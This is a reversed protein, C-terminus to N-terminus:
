RTEDMELLAILDEHVVAIDDQDLRQGYPPNSVITGDRSVREALAKRERSVIAAVGAREANAKAYAIMQIDRDAGKLVYEKGSMMKQRAAEQTDSIAINWCPWKECGFDRDLGPARNIAMMAAEIVFTGSGCTPDLLPQKWSRGIGYLIAAAVNEKLPADGTDLRYGRQYLADGSADVVVQVRDQLLSVSM